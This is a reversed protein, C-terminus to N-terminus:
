TARCTPRPTFLDYPGAVWAQCEPLSGRTCGALFDGQSSACVPSRVSNTYGSCAISSGLNACAVLTGTAPSANTSQMFRQSAGGPGPAPSSTAFPFGSNNINYCAKATASSAMCGRISRGATNWGGVVAIDNVASLTANVIFDPLIPQM